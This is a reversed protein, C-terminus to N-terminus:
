GYGEKEGIFVVIGSELTPVMYNDSVTLVAGDNYVNAKTYELKENFVAEEKPAVKDISLIKGFYKEYIAKLKTFKFSDEYVYKILINKFSNNSKILILCSLFIITVILLRNIFSRIGKKLVLKKKVTKKNRYEEVNM